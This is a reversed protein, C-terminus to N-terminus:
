QEVKGKKWDVLCVVEYKTGQLTTQESWKVLGAYLPCERVLRDHMRKRADKDASALWAEARKWEESPEPPPLLRAPALRARQAEHIARAHKLIDATGISGHHEGSNWHRKIAAVVLAFPLNQVAEAIAAMQMETLGAHPFFGSITRAVKRLEDRTM